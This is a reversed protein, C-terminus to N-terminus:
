IINAILTRAKVIIIAAASCCHVCPRVAGVESMIMHYYITTYCIYYNVREGRRSHHEEKRKKEMKKVRCILPTIMMEQIASSQVDKASLDDYSDYGLSM